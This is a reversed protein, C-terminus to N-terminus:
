GAVVAENQAEQELKEGLKHRLREIAEHLIINDAKQGEAYNSMDIILKVLEDKSLKKLRKIATISFDAM